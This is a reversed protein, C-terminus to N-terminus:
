LMHIMGHWQFLAKRQLDWPGPSYDWRRCVTSDMDAIPDFATTRHISSPPWRQNIKTTCHKPNRNHERAHVVGFEFRERECALSISIALLSFLIGADKRAGDGDILDLNCLLLCISQMVSSHITSKSKPKPLSLSKPNTPLPCARLYWPGSVRSLGGRPM